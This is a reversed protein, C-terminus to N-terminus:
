KTKHLSLQALLGFELQIGAAYSAWSLLGSTAVVCQLIAWHRDISYDTGSSQGVLQRVATRTLPPFVVMAANAKSGVWYSRFSDKLPWNTRKGSFCVFHLSEKCWNRLSPYSAENKLGTWKGLDERAQAQSNQLSSGDWKFSAQIQMLFPKFANRWLAAFLSLAQIVDVEAM